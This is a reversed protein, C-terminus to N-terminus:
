GLQSDDLGAGKFADRIGVYGAPTTQKTEGYKPNTLNEWADYNVNKAVEKEGGVNWISIRYSRGRDTSSRYLVYVDTKEFTPNSM